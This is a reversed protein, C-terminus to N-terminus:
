KVARMFERVPIRAKAKKMWEKLLDMTTAKHYKYVNFSCKYQPKASEYVDTFGERQLALCITRATNYSVGIALQITRTVFETDPNEKIWAKAREKKELFVKVSGSIKNDM